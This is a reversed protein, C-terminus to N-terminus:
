NAIAYGSGAKVGTKVVLNKVVKKKNKMLREKRVAEV